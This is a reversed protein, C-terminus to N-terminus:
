RGAQHWTPSTASRSVDGPGASSDTEGRLWGALVLLSRRFLFVRCRSASGALGFGGLELFWAVGGCGVGSERVVHLGTQASGSFGSLQVFTTAALAAGSCCYAM